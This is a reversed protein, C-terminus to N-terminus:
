AVNFILNIWENMTPSASCVTRSWPELRWLTQWCLPVLHLIKGHTVTQRDVRTHTHTQTQGYWKDLIRSKVGLHTYIYSSIVSVTNNDEAMIHPAAKRKWQHWNSRNQALEKLQTYDMNTKLIWSLLMKRPKGRGKKGQLLGELVTSVLCDHQPVHRKTLM